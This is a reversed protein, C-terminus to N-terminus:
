QADWGNMIKIESWYKSAALQEKFSQMFEEKGKRNEPWAKNFFDLAFQGNGTYILDLMNSWLRAPVEGDFESKTLYIEKEIDEPPAKKMFAHALVYKGNKYELIVLPAPSSAFPVRWYAFVWDRGVLEYIGDGNFDKFDFVDHYGEIEDIKNFQEGLSFIYTSYCCHAGGSWMSIILDPIGDGTIDKVTISEGQKPSYDKNDSTRVSFRGDKDFCVRKGKHLVEYADYGSDPSGINLTYFRIEYDQNIRNQSAPVLAAIQENGTPKKPPVRQEQSCRSCGSLSLIISAVLFFLEYFTVM